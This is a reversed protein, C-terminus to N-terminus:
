IHFQTKLLVHQLVLNFIYILVTEIAIKVNKNINNAPVTNIKYMHIKILLWAWNNICDLLLGFLISIPEQM